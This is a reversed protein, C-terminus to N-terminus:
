QGTIEELIELYLIFKELWVIWCLFLKTIQILIDAIYWFTLVLFALACVQFEIGWFDNGIVLVEYILDSSVYFDRNLLLLTAKAIVVTSKIVTEGQKCIVSRILQKWLFILSFWIWEQVLYPIHFLHVSLINWKIRIDYM